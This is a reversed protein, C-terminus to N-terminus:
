AVLEFDPMKFSRSNLAETAGYFRFLPYPRKGGTPIWNAELGKPAKPGIYLYVSDDPQKTMSALDYMSLTTRSSDTYIFAFTARDYITLAWFQRVPMDAPVRVRYTKGAEFPNRDGTGMAVMYENAPTDSIEKPMYTCPFFAAARGDIDISDEYEYTFRRNRDTFQAKVYNRDEWFYYGPDVKEWMKDMYFYADVVAAGMARRQKETPAFPKGRVIGLSRLNGVMIKDKEAIPEVSFIAHVDAFYREDYFPLTPYVLNVLDLFKQQPPNDVQSLYYMRLKKSYAYADADTKGPARISRFGFAIRFSPSAVHIYGDPIPGAYRPPTFLYKSAKGRDLGSPGVDAITIQWADVVQGYLTGSAGSEPVELVVPGKRLDTYSAIYPTSSNATLLENNPKCVGSNALIDNDTMDFNDLAGARLRYISVASISWLVTEFARQYIVQYDLDAVSPRSGPAPQGGTPDKQAPVTQAFAIGGGLEPGRAGGALVIGGALTSFQRRSLLPM